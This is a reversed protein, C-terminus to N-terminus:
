YASYFVPAHPTFSGKKPKSSPMRELISTGQRRTVELFEQNVTCFPCFTHLLCDELYATRMSYKERIRSRNYTAGICGLGCPLYCHLVTSGKTVKSVLQGQVCCPAGICSFFVLFCFLGPTKKCSFLAEEFDNM